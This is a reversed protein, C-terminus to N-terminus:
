NSNDRENKIDEFVRQFKNKWEPMIEVFPIANSYNKAIKQSNPIKLHIKIDNKQCYNEIEDYGKQYRNIIVGSSVDLKKLVKISRKLDNLGFPTPETVLLCYDLDRISEIVPCDTGPPIDYISISNKESQKKLQKIIPTSIAKGTELTGQYLTIKKDGGKEIFGIKQDKEKIANTPCVLKCLGCGHCLEQHVIQKDEFIVLANFNCKESCKGCSNCKKSDIIPIKKNVDRIKNLKFKLFTNLNPEEVDLDIIETKKNEKQKLSLALNLAVTTKGTGGKGGAVGLEM